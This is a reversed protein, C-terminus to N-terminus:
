ARSSFLSPEPGEFCVAMSLARVAMASAFVLCVAQFAELVVRLRFDLRFPCPLGDFRRPLDDGFQFAGANIAAVCSGGNSPLPKGRSWTVVGGAQSVHRSRRDDDASVPQRCPPSGPHGAAHQWRAPRDGEASRHEPRSWATLVFAPDDRPLRIEAPGAPDARGPRFRQHHGGGCRVGQRLRRDAAPRWISM